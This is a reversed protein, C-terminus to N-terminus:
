EEADRETLTISVRILCESNIYQAKDDSHETKSNASNNVGLVPLTTQIRLDCNKWARPRDSKSFSRFVLPRPVLTGSAEERYAPAAIFYEITGDMFSEMSPVAKKVLLTESSSDNEVREPVFEARVV